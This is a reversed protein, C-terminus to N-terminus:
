SPLQQNKQFDVLISLHKQEEGIVRTLVSSFRNIFVRKMEGYVRISEKEARIAIETAVTLDIHSSPDIHQPFVFRKLDSIGTELERIVDIVYENQQEQQMNHVMQEFIIKHQAEQYALYQFLEKVKKDASVDALKKYFLWGADEINMALRAIDASQAYYAM